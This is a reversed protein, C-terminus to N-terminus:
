NSFLRFSLYVYVRNYSNCCYPVFSTSPTVNCHLQHSYHLHIDVGAAFILVDFEHVFEVHYDDQGIAAAAGVDKDDAAVALLM